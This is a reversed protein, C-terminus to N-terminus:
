LSISVSFVRYLHVFYMIGAWPIKLVQKIPITGEDQRHLKASQNDNTHIQQLGHEWKRFTQNYNTDSKRRVQQARKISIYIFPYIASGICLGNRHLFQIPVENLYKSVLIRDFFDIVTRTSCLDSRYINPQRYKQSLLKGNTGFTNNDCIIDYSVEYWGDAEVLWTIVQSCSIPSATDDQEFSYTGHCRMHQQGSNQPM